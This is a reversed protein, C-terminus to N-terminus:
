PLLFSKNCHKHVPFPSLPRFILSLYKQGFFSSEELSCQNISITLILSLSCNRSSQFVYSCYLKKRVTVINGVCFSIKRPWWYVMLFVESKHIVSLIWFAHDSFYAVISFSTDIRAFLKDHSKFCPSSREVSM